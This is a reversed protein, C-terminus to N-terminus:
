HQVSIRLTENRSSRNIQLLYLGNPVASVDLQFYNEGVTSPITQTSYIKGYYDTLQIVTPEANSNVFTINSLDQVPNPAAVASNGLRLATTPAAEIKIDDLGCDKANTFTLKDIVIGKGATVEGWKSYQFTYNFNFTFKTVGNLSGTVSWGANSGYVLTNVWFSPVIVPNSFVMTANNNQVIAMRNAGITTKDEFVPNTDAGDTSYFGLFYATTNKTDVNTYVNPNLNKVGNAQETFTIFTNNVTSNLTKVLLPLSPSSLNGAADEARVIMAYTTNAILGTISQSTINGAVTAILKANQYILYKTVAVNDTAAAWSLTFSTTTVNTAKLNFPTSPKETDIINKTTVNIPTSAASINGAADKAKITVTYLTAAKLGNVNFTTTSGSVTGALIGNRYIDYSTVGVNDTSATWSLVFSNTSINSAVVNIPATPAQTDPAVAPEIAIDDIGCDKANTFILKDVTKGNGATVQGWKSYPFTYNFTFTFQTIGNLTGEVKWGTNAGYILTNVYFSPVKVAKTFTLIAYNNTIQAMRNNGTPSNDAFTQDSIVGDYSNFNTFFADTGQKDINTYKNPNLPAFGAPQNAFDIINGNSIIVDATKITLVNSAM